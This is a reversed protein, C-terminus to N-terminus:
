QVSCKRRRTTRPKDKSAQLKDRLAKADIGRRWHILGDVAAVMEVPLASTSLACWVFVMRRLQAEACVAKLLHEQERAIRKQERVCEVFAKEVNQHTKASTEYYQADIRKAFAAGEEGSVVRHEVLDAKNACVVIAMAAAGPVGVRAGKEREIAQFARDLEALSSESTVSFVLLAADCAQICQERSGPTADYEATGMDVVNFMVAKDDVVLQKRCADTPGVCFEMTLASKGVGREGLVDVNFTEPMAM